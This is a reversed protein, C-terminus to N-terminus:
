VLDGALGIRGGGTSTPVADPPVLPRVATQLGLRSLRRRRGIELPFWSTASRHQTPGDQRRTSRCASHRMALRRHDVHAAFRNGLGPPM